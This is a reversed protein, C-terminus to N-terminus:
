SWKKSTKTKALATKTKTKVKSPRLSKFFQLRLVLFTKPGKKSRFSRLYYNKETVPMIGDHNPLVPM